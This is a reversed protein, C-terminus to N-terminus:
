KLPAACNGTVVSLNTTHLESFRSARPVDRLGAAMYFTPSVVGEANVLRNALKACHCLAGAQGVISCPKCRAKYQILSALKASTCRVRNWLM